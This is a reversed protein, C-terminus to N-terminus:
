SPGAAAEGAFVSLRHAMSRGRSAVRSVLAEGGPADALAAFPGGTDLCASCAMGGSDVLLGLEAAAANRDGALLMVRALLLGGDPDVAAAARRETEIRTLVKRAEAPRGDLAAFAAEGLRADVASPALRFAPEILARAGAADGGDLLALARVLRGRPTRAPPPQLAGSAPQALFPGVPPLDVSAVAASDLALARAVAARAAGHGGALACARATALEVSPGAAARAAPGSLRELAEDLRGLDLLAEARLATLRDTPGDLRLAEEAAALAAEAHGRGYGCSVALHRQIRALIEYVPGFSPDLAKARDVVDLIASGDCSPEAAWREALLALRLAEASAPEPGESVTSSAIGLAELVTRTVVTAVASLDALGADDLRTPLLVRGVARTAGTEPASPDHIVVTFAPSGNQEADVAATVVWEVALESAIEALNAAAAAVPASRQPDRVLVRPSADLRRATLWVCAEAVRQMEEDVGSTALLAIRVPPELSRLPAPARRGSLLGVGAAAALVGLALAAALRPGTRSVPSPAPADRRQPPPAPGPDCRQAVEAAAEVVDAIWRLGRGHVTAIFQQRRSDDNLLRRAEYVCRSLASDGVVVDAWLVDLLEERSVLRDRHTVLYAILELVRPEAELRVGNRTLSYRAGDLEYEAFRAVTPASSAADM